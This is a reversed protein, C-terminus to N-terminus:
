YVPVDPFQEEQQQKAKKLEVNVLGDGDFDIYIPGSIAKSYQGRQVNQQKTPINLPNVPDQPLSRDGEVVVTLIADRKMKLTILKENHAQPFVLGSKPDVSGAPLIFKRIFSGNLYITIDSVSAWNPTYVKLDVEITGDTDTVLSGMGSGNVKLDIFPGNTIQVKGEKINQVLEDIDLKRPDDQSSQIYVRPYGPEQNYTGKSLSYGLPTITKGLAATQYYAQLSQDIIGQRKGEWIQFGDIDLQLDGEPMVGKNLDYGQLTLFGTSPFIPRSGVLVADPCLDRLMGIAEGVTSTEELRTFDVDTGASCFDTPFLLYEGRKASNTSGIRVGKSARLYKNLGLKNIAPQLDTATFLDASVIWDLGEAAASAARIEPVVRSQPSAETQVGLDASIWGETTFARDLEFRVMQNRQSIMRVRKESMHYENGHSAVVRYAGQPVEVMGKGTFTWASNGSALQGPAGLDPIMSGRLPELSIKAPIPEQTEADVIEFVLMAPKSVEIIGPTIQGGGKVFIGRSSRAYERSSSWASLAYEGAPLTVQFNGYKDSKTYLYPKALYSNPLDDRKVVMLRVEANPVVGSETVTGDDLVTKEVVRGGIYGYEKLPKETVTFSYLDGPDDLGTVLWRKYEYSQGPKIVVNRDYILLSYDGNFHFDFFDGTSEPKIMMLGDGFRGFVFECEPVISGPEGVWGSGSTFPIMAGWAVYDGVIPLTCDVNADNTITTTALVGQWGKKLEYTSDVTVSAHKTDEGLVVVRASGDNPDSEMDITLALVSRADATEVTTPQFLQFGEPAAPSSFIDLMSGQRAQNYEEANTPIAGFTFNAFDNRLIVDGFTAHCWFEDAIEYQSDLLLVESPSATEEKSPESVINLDIEPPPTGQGQAVCALGVFGVLMMNKLPTKM